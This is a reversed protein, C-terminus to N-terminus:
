MGGAIFGDKQLLEITKNISGNAAHTKGIRNYAEYKITAKWVVKRDVLSLLELSEDFEDIANGYLSVRTFAKLLIYKAKNQKAFQALPSETLTVEDTEHFAVANVGYTGSLASAMMDSVKNAYDRLQSNATSTVVVTEGKLAYVKEFNSQGVNKISCGVFLFSALIAVILNKM